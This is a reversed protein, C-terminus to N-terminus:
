FDFFVREGSLFDDCNEFVEFCYKYNKDKFWFDIAKGTGLSIYAEESTSIANDRFVINSGAPLNTSDLKEIYTKAIRARKLVWHDKRILNINLVSSFVFILFLFLSLRDSFFNMILGVLLSIGVTSLAMYHPSQHTPILVFPFLGSFIIAILFFAHKQNKLRKLKFFTAPLLVFAWFLLIINAVKAGSVEAFGSIRLLYYRFTDLIETSFNIPYVNFTAKPTLLLFKAILFVLSVLCLWIYFHKRKLDNSLFGWVLYIPLTMIMSESSLLSFIVSVLAFKDLRLLLAYFSLLFFFIGINISSGSIWTLSLFHVPHVLYFFSAFLASKQSILKEAIKYILFGSLIHLIFVSLHYGFYNKGFINGAAFFYLNHFPRWHTVRPIGFVNSTDTILNNQSFENILIFDDQAFFTFLSFYFVTFTAISLSAIIAINKRM